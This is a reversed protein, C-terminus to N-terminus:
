RKFFIRNCKNLVEYLEYVKNFVSNINLYVMIFKKKNKSKFDNILDIHNLSAEINFIENLDGEHSFFPLQKPLETDESNPSCIIKIKNKSSESENM